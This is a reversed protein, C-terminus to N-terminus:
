LFRRMVTIGLKEAQGVCNQTGRGGPYAILLDAGRLMEGNRIPGAARGRQDWDATFMEYNFGCERCLDRVCMDVGSADGVRITAGDRNNSLMKTLFGEEKASLENTRGGTFAIVM